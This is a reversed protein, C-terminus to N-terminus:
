CSLSHGRAVSVNGKLLIWPVNRDYNGVNELVIWERRAGYETKIFIEKLEPKFRYIETFKKIM